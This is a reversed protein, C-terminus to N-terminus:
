IQDINNKNYNKIKFLKYIQQANEIEDKKLKEM